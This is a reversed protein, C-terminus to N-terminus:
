LFRLLESTSDTQPSSKVPSLMFGFSPTYKKSIRPLPANRVNFFTSQSTQQLYRFHSHQCSYRCHPHFARVGFAWPKRACREDACPLDAGLALSFLTTSPFRTLIGAGQVLAFPPRLFTARGPTPQGPSLRYTSSKPLDPDENLVSCRSECSSPLIAGYSRSFTCGNQHDM